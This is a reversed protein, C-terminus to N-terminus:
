VRIDNAGDLVYLRAYGNDEDVTTGSIGANGNTGNFVSQSSWPSTDGLAFALEHVQNDPDGYYLRLGYSNGRRAGFWFESYTAALAKASPSVKIASTQLPGPLWTSLNDTSIVEQLIDSPDVYFM